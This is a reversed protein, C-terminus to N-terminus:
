QITKFFEKWEERIKKVGFMAIATKRGNESIMKAKEDNNLLETIYNKLESVDDSWYGNYGNQIIEYVEYTQQEKFINNAHKPGIAVIPIGTMMAEIMGLTYSAPQTGTYLYVRSERLVSKLGEFSLIGGEIGSNENGPGYLKRPFGSTAKDFLDFNLFRARNYKSTPDNMSQAITIVEKKEGTWDKYEEPDKYFRIMADEGVYGPITNEKPSYRVIKLGQERYEKLKLEIHRTSQGISRWVVPKKEINMWNNSIWDPVHHVIMMDMWKILEDHINDKSCQLGISVLRQDPEFNIIKPRLIGTNSSQFVGALSFVKYGLETFLQIEDAELIEHCSLLLINM